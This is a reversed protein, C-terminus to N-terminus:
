DKTADKVKYPRDTYNGEIRELRELQNLIERRTVKVLRDLPGLFYVYSLRKNDTVQVKRKLIGKKVLKVLSARISRESRKVNKMIDTVSLARQTLALAKVIHVSTMPLYFVDSVLDTIDKFRPL